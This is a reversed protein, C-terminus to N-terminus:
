VILAKQNEENYITVTYSGGHLIFKVFPTGDYLFVYIHCM